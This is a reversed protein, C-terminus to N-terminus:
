SLVFSVLFMEGVVYVCGMLVLCMYFWNMAEDYSMRLVTWLSLGFTVPLLIVAFIYSVWVGIHSLKQTDRGENRYPNYNFRIVDSRRCIPMLFGVQHLFAVGYTLVISTVALGLLQIIGNTNTLDIFDVEPFLSSCLTIIMLSALGIAFRRAPGLRDPSPCTFPSLLLHTQYFNYWINQLFSTKPEEEYHIEYLQMSKELPNKPFNIYRFSPFFDCFNSRFLLTLIM